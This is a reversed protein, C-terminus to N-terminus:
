CVLEEQQTTEASDTDNIRQTGVIAIGIADTIDPAFGEAKDGENKQEEKLKKHKDAMPPFHYFVANRVKAKTSKVGEGLLETHWSNAAIDFWPIGYQHAIVKCVTISAVVLESNSGLKGVPVIEAFIVDPDTQMVVKPFLDAINIIGENLYENFKQGYRPTQIMGWKLLEMEGDFKVAGFGLREMGPDLGLIKV